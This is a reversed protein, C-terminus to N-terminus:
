FPSVSVGLAVMWPQLDFPPTGSVPVVVGGIVAVEDTSWEVSAQGSIVTLPLAQDIGRDQDHELFATYSIGIAPVLPGLFYGTYAYASGMPARYSGLDNRGGRYSGLAGVLILGWTEDMTHEAWLAGNFNGFGLQKDQTLTDFKYQADHVGTPIGLSASVTTANIPGLKRTLMLNMDGLGANSVDVPLQAFNYYYKYLYPVLVSATWKQDTDLDRSIQEIVALSYGSGGFSSYSGM